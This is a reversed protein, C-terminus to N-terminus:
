VVIMIEYDDTKTEINSTVPQFLEDILPIENHV